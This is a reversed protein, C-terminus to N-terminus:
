FKVNGKDKKTQNLKQQEKFISAEKYIGEKYGNNNNHRTQYGKGEPKARLSDLAAQPPDFAELDGKNQLVHLFNKITGPSLSPRDSSKLENYISILREVHPKAALIPAFSTFLCYFDDSDKNRSTLEKLLQRTNLKLLSDVETADKYEIVFDRM